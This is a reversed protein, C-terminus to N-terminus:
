EVADDARPAGNDAVFRADSAVAEVAIRFPASPADADDVGAANNRFFSIENGRLDEALRPDCEIFGRRDDHDDVAARSSAPGSRSSTRSSRLVPRGSKRATLLTSVSFCDCEDVVEMTQSDLLHEGDGGFVAAPDVIQQVGHKLDKRRRSLEVASTASSRFRLRSM